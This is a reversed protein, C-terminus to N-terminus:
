KYKRARNRRKKILAQPKGMAAALTDYSCAECPLPHDKCRSCRYKNYGAEIALEIMKKRNMPM